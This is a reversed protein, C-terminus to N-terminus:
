YALGSTLQTFKMFTEADTRANPQVRISEFLMANKHEGHVNRNASQSLASTPRSNIGIQAVKDVNAIKEDRDRQVISNSFQVQGAGIGKSAKNHTSIASSGGHGVSKALRTFAEKEDLTTMIQKVPERMIPDFESSMRTYDVGSAGRTFPQFKMPIFNIDDDDKYNLDDINEFENANDLKMRKPARSDFRYSEPILNIDDDDVYNLSDDPKHDHGTAMRMYDPANSNFRYLSPILNIDEEQKFHMNMIQDFETNNANIVPDIDKAGRVFSMAMTQNLVDYKDDLDVHQLYDVHEFATNSGDKRRIGTNNDKGASRPILHGASAFSTDMLGAAEKDSMMLTNKESFSALKSSSSSCMDVFPRKSSKNPGHGRATGASREMTTNMLAADEKGSKLRTFAHRGVLLDNANLKPQKTKSAGSPKTISYLDPKIEQRYHHKEWGVPDHVVHKYQQNAHPNSISRHHKSEFQALQKQKEERTELLEIDHRGGAQFLSPAGMGANGFPHRMKGIIQEAAQMEAKTHMIRNLQKEPKDKPIGSTDTISTRSDYTNRFQFSRNDARRYPNIRFDQVRRATPISKDGALGAKQKYSDLNENRGSFVQQDSNLTNSVSKNMYKSLVGVTTKTSPVADGNNNADVATIKPKIM